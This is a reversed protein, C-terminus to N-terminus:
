MLLFFAKLTIKSEYEVFVFLLSCVWFRQRKMRGWFVSVNAWSLWRFDLFFQGCLKTSLSGFGHVLCGFHVVEALFFM